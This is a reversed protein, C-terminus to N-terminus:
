AMKRPTKKRFQQGKPLRQNAFEPAGALDQVRQKRAEYGVAKLSDRVLKWVENLNPAKGANAAYAHRISDTIQEESAIKHKAPSPAETLCAVLTQPLLHRWRPNRLLWDVAQRAILKVHDPHKVQWFFVADKLNDTKGRFWCEDSQYAELFAKELAMSRSDMDGLNSADTRSLMFIIDTLSVLGFLYNTWFERSGGPGYIEVFDQEDPRKQVAANQVLLSILRTHRLVEMENTFIEGSM